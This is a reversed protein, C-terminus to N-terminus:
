DKNFLRKLGDIVHQSPPEDLAKNLQEWEQESVKFIQPELRQEEFVLSLKEELRDAAEKIVNLTMEQIALKETLRDIAQSLQETTM